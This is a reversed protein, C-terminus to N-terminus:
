FIVLLLFVIPSVDLVHLLEDVSSLIDLLKARSEVLHPELGKDSVMTERVGTGERDWM